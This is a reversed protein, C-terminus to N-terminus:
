HALQRLFPRDVPRTVAEVFQARTGSVGRSGCSVLESYCAGSHHRLQGASASAAVALGAPAMVALRSRISHPQLNVGDVSHVRRRLSM